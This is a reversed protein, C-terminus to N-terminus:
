IYCHSACSVSCYWEKCDKKYNDFQEQMPKKMDIFFHKQKGCLKCYIKGPRNERMFQKKRLEVSRRLWEEM